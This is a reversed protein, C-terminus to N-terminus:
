RVHQQIRRAVRDPLRSIVEPPLKCPFIAPGYSALTNEAASVMFLNTQGNFAWVRHNGEVYVFAGAAARWSEPSITTSGKESLRSVRLSADHESVIVRWRGCISDHAGTLMILSSPHDETTAQALSLRSVSHAKQEPAVHRCGAAMIVLCAICVDSHRM